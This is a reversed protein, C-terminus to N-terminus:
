ALTLWDHVADLLHTQRDLDASKLTDSGPLRGAKLQLGILEIAHNEHMAAEVQERHLFNHFKDAHMQLAETQTRYLDTSCGPLGILLGLAGVIFRSLFGM